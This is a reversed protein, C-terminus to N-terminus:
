PWFDNDCAASRQNRLHQQRRWGPTNPKFDGEGSVYDAEPDAEQIAPILTKLAQVGLADTMALDGHPRLASDSGLTMGSKTSVFVVLSEGREARQWHYQRLEELSEKDPNSYQGSFLVARYERFIHAKGKGSSPWGIDKSGPDGAREGEKHRYFNTYGYEWLKKGFTQGPGQKEYIVLAEPDNMCGFWRGAAFVIQALDTPDAFPNKYRAVKIRNVADIVAIASNSVGAGESIDVAFVYPVKSSPRGHEDLNIWLDWRGTTSKEWKPMKFEDSGDSLYSQGQLQRQHMITFYDADFTLTGTRVPPKPSDHLVRILKDVDFIVAGSKDRQIDLERARLIPNDLRNVHHDYWPSRLGDWPPNAEEQFPYYFAAPAHLDTGPPFKVYSCRKSFWGVKVTSWFERDIYEVKGEHKRYLGVSQQPHDLWKLTVVDCKPQDVMIREDFAGGLGQPTSLMFQCDNTADLSGMLQISDEISWAALEDIFDIFHRGGRGADKVSTGGLLTNGNLHNKIMLNADYVPSRLYPPQMKRIYRFKWFLSDQSQPKDVLDKNRSLMMMLVEEEFEFCWYLVHEMGWTAGQDRTKKCGLDREGRREFLETVYKRQHPYLILPRRRMRGKGRPEHVWGFTEAWFLPDHGCASRLLHQRDADSGVWNRIWKRFRVNEVPDKPVFQENLWYPHAELDPTAVIM